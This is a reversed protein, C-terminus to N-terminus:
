LTLACSAAGVLPAQSNTIVYVPVRELMGALRGKDRFVRLFIGDQLKPLIKPPIGGGLYVGGTALHTLALNGGQAGLASVFVELAQRCLPDAGALALESITASPDGERLRVRVWDAEGGRSRLFRYINYLGPGSIVREWSVHGFERRLFALLEAQLGDAPAFDAHGGESAAPRYRTGDWCLYAQGLGTGPALIAIAGTAQPAGEQLVVLDSAQLVPVAYALAELDNILRVHGVGLAARLREEDIRWPLNTIRAEGGMVPGAVGFCAGEIPGKVDALYADIIAELGPYRQSEFSRIEAIHWEPGRQSVLALKTKTGGLDGALIM